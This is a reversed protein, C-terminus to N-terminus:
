FFFNNKLDSLNKSLFFKAACAGREALNVSTKSNSEYFYIQDAANHGNKFIAFPEIDSWGIISVQSPQLYVSTYKSIILQRM